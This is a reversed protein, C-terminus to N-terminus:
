LLLTGSRNISQSRFCFFQKLYLNVWAIFQNWSFVWINANKNSIYWIAKGHFVFYLKLLWHSERQWSCLFKGRCKKLGYTERCEHLTGPYKPSCFKNQRKTYCTREYKLKHLWYVKPLHFIWILLFAKVKHRVNM